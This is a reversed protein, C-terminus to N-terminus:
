IFIKIEGRWWLFPQASFFQHKLITPSSFVSSLGKSPLSILDTLGLPFWGQINMPFSIVLASAGISQGGSAFLQSMLFSASAPFSQLCSSFPTISSLITPHCWRSLSSTQAFKLLCHLVPLGPMSCDTPDCLTACSWTVSYFCCCIQENVWHQILHYVKVGDKPRRKNKVWWGATM